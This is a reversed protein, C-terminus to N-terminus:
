SKIPHSSITPSKGKKLNFIEETMRLNGMMHIWDTNDCEGRECWSNETKRMLIILRLKGKIEKRANSKGVRGLSKKQILNCNRALFRGTYPRGTCAKGNLCTMRAIMRLAVFLISTISEIDGGTIYSNYFVFAIFIERNKNIYLYFFFSINLHKINLHICRLNTVWM